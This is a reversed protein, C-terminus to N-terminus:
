RNMTEISDVERLKGMEPKSGEIIFGGTSQGILKDIPKMVTRKKRNGKTAPRELQNFLQNMM